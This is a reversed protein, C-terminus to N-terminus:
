RKRLQSNNELSFYVIAPIINYFVKFRKNVRFTFIKEFFPMGIHNARDDAFSIIETSYLLYHSFNHKQNKIKIPRGDCLKWGFLDM